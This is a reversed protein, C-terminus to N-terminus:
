MRRSQQEGWLRLWRNWDKKDSLFNLHRAVEDAVNEKHGVFHWGTVISDPMRGFAHVEGNRTIRVREAGNELVYARIERNTIDTWHRATM